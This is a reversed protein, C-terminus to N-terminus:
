APPATRVKLIQDYLGLILTNLVPSSSASVVYRSWCHLPWVRPPTLLFSPVLLVSRAILLAAVIAPVRARHSLAHTAVATKPM